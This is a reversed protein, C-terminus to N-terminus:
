KLVIFQMGYPGTKASVNRVSGDGKATVGNILIDYLTHRKLNTIEYKYFGDSSVPVLVELHTPNNEAGHSEVFRLRHRIIIGNRNAYPIEMWKLMISSSSTNYIETFNPAASPVLFCINCKSPLKTMRDAVYAYFSSKRCVYENFKELKFTNVM